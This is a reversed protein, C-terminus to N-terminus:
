TVLGKICGGEGDELGWGNEVGLSFHPAEVDPLGLSSSFDSLPGKGLGSGGRGIGSRRGSEANHIANADPEVKPDELPQGPEEDDEADASHTAHEGGAALGGGGGGGL